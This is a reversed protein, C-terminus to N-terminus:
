STQQNEEYLTVAKAQEFHRFEHAIMIDLATALSYTIYKNVPSSIILQEHNLHQTNEVLTKLHEQHKVFDKVINSSITSHAPEFIPFTKLKRPSEKISKLLFNGLFSPLLPIRQVFTPQYKGTLMSRIIPFYTENTKMIHDICQGVSWQDARPKWNLEEPTLRGFSKVFIGSAEDLQAIWYAIKVSETTVSEM